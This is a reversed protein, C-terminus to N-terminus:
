STCMVMAEAHQALLKAVEEPKTELVHAIVEPSYVPVSDVGVSFAMRLALLDLDNGAQKRVSSLFLGESVGVPAGGLVAVRQSAVGCLRAQAELMAMVEPALGAQAPSSLGIQIAMLIVALYIKKM